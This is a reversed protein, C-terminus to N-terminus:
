SNQGVVKSGDSLTFSWSVEVRSGRSPVQVRGSLIEEGPAVYVEFFRVANVRELDGEEFRGDRQTGLAKREFGGSDRASVWGEAVTVQIWNGFRSVATPFPSRNILRV